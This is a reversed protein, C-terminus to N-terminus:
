RIFYLLPYFVKMLMDESVGISRLRNGLGPVFMLVVFALLYAAVVSLSLYLVVKVATARESPSVRRESTNMM